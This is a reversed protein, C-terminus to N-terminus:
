DFKHCKRFIGWIKKRNIANLCSGLVVYFGNYIEIGHAGKDILFSNTRSLSLDIVINIYLVYVQLGLVLLFQLVDFLDTRIKGESINGKISFVALGFFKEIRYLPKILNWITCGQKM